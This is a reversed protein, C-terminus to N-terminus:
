FVRKEEEGDRRRRSRTARKRWRKRRRRMKQVSRTASFGGLAGWVAEVEFLAVRSGGGSHVGARKWGRAGALTELADEPRTTFTEEEPLRKKGRARPQKVNKAM